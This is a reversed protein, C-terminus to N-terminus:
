LLNDAGNESITVITNLSFFGNEATFSTKGFKPAAKSNGFVNNNGM